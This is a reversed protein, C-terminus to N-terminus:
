PLSEWRGQGLRGRVSGDISIVTRDASSHPEGQEFRVALRDRDPLDENRSPRDIV